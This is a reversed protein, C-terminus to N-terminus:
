RLRGPPCHNGQRVTIEGQRATIQTGLETARAPTIAQRHLPWVEQEEFDIHELGATIVDTLLPEFEPAGADLRYLTMLAHRAQEEQRIAKDAVPGQKRVAPWFFEEEAAEHRSEAAILLHILRRRAELQSSTAGTMATPRSQLETLMRNIEDHDQKLVEFVDAM